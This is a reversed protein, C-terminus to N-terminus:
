AAGKMLREYHELTGDVMLELSFRAEAERRAASGLARAMAADNVVRSLADFAGADDDQAVVLATRGAEVIDEHGIFNTTVIPCGAAMAELVANPFGEYRSTYCFLDAARLLAPVDHRLGLFQVVDELGMRTTLARLAGEQEGHGAIFFHLPLRGRCEAAIRLLMPYNKAETLRGVTLAIRTGAPCGREGLLAERSPVTTPGGLDIGNPVVAIRSAPVGVRSAVAAAVASSNVLYHVRGGDALRSIRLFPALDVKSSRISLVIRPVGALLGGWRGWLAGGALWCHLVDPNRRRIEGALRWLFAPSGIRGREVRVFELGADRYVRFGEQDLSDSYYLVDQVARQVPALSILRCLQLEAGGIGIQPILHTIRFRSTHM